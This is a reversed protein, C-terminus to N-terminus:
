VLKKVAELMESALRQDNPATAFRGPIEDIWFRAAEECGGVDHGARLGMARSGAWHFVLDAGPPARRALEWDFLFPGKGKLYRLNWPGMDGHMATWHLHAQDIPIIPDLLQAVEASVQNPPAPLRATHLGPPFPSLGMTSWDPSNSVGVLSPATFTSAGSVVDVLSAEGLLGDDPRWKVFGLGVGGNLLMGAFGSRGEQRPRYLALEDFPGFWESWQETLRGWLESDVPPHWEEASILRLPATGAVGVFHYAISRMARAGVRCASWM